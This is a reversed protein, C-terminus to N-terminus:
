LRAREVSRPSLMVVGNAPPTDFAALVDAPQIAQMCQHQHVCPQRCYCNMCDFEAQIGIVNNGQPRVRWVDTPGCVVVMPATSSAALHATGTDNGVQLRAGMAIPVIELVQTKGCLNVVGNGALRAIENCDDMEDKGGILAVQQVRGQQLLQRALAAYNANGWRKLYGAAQCGPYFVAYQGDQLGYQNLLAQAHQRHHEPIFFVPRATHPTIGAAQLSARMRDVPNAAARQEPGSFHWPFGPKNGIILSANGTLRLWGLMLRSRDNSQLDVILDYQGQRVQKLWRLTNQWKRGKERVAIAIIKSFRPDHEFLTHWPPQTNLHLVAHPFASAIDQMICTSMAIDGLASWKIILIRRIRQPDLVPM